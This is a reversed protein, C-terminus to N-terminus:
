RSASSRATTSRCGTPPRRMRQLGAACEDGSDASGLPGRFTATDALVGRVADFDHDRWGTFYTDALVAPDSM